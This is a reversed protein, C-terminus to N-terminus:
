GMYIQSIQEEFSDRLEQELRAIDEKAENWIQQGNLTVGGVMQVGSYKKLQEGWQRKILATAYKKLFRDNWVDTDGEKVITLGSTNSSYPSDVIMQTPSIITIIQKTETGITVFDKELIKM